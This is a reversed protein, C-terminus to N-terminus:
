TDEGFVALTAFIGLVGIAVGLSAYMPKKELAQPLLEKLSVTTMVGAVMMFSCDIFQPNVFGRLVLVSLAAAVPEVLGTLTAVVFSTWRRRTANYVAFAVAIGEPINHMAMAITVAILRSDHGGLSTVGVALGEPANHATLAFATLLASKARAGARSDQNDIRNRRKAATPSGDRGDTGPESGGGVRGPGAPTNSCGNTHSPLLGPDTDKLTGILLAEPDLHGVAHDLAYIVASGLVFFAVVTGPSHKGSGLLPLLMDFVSLSVMAGAAVGLMCSNLRPGIEKFCYVMAGGLGTSLGAISSYYLATLTEDGLSKGTEGAPNIDDMAPAGLM